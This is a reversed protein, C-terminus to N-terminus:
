LDLVEQFWLEVNMLMWVKKGWFDYKLNQQNNLLNEIRDRRFIGRRFVSPDLLIERAQEMLGQKIWLDLPTPFGLKKRSFIEPPLLRSGIKRLIYKNIDLWESASFSSYFLAWLKHLFSKWRIKYKFPIQTVFEVLEHDVFPVRAEVSAAMSMMDLRDLLCGLHIKEFVHLVRDYPNIHNTKNFLERFINITKDDNHLQSSAEATFLGQKEEFPIWNYVHFFHNMHNDISLLNITSNKPFLKNFGKAIPSKIFKSAFCIKEWDMPSRQVRGYGGFLEDAGEGSLVVTVHKKLEMSMQYLAVEHPISLPIGRQRILKPWLNLYDKRPLLIQVHDTNCHNSVIQAYEGENYQDEEYGIAFTKIPANNVKSMMAVLISSDLGGSLYAGLPVDSMMRMKIAQQLKEFVGDLYYEEGHDVTNINIPLEWFKNIKAEGNEYILYHGPLLKNIDQIFNLNWVAQRFTLYSSIADICARRPFNPYQFISPMESSFLLKNDFLAWYLPKIGLRDRALFARQKNQDWICFAFFGNFRKLCDIGWQEYAHIVVETDCNTSFKHNLSILEARIPHFNYIEGNYTIWIKGDENSMPQQGYKLDIISLRRHGLGVGKDFYFGSDDPGRHYLVDTMRQLINPSISEDKESSIIGAIGCM